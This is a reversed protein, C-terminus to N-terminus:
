ESDRERGDDLLEVDRLRKEISRTRVFASDIGESAQRLKEQARELMQGFAGFDGRVEGLLRWLEASHRQIALTRFGMQLSNLLALLTSPGAMIVRYDRQVQEVTEASRMVEAYLGETPLFMVAFDTTYPPEVYKDAIRKAEVRIAAALAKRAAEVAKPEGQQSADLLRLYAEQPFKSDIPLYVPADSPSDRGPLCLAFEVREAAHPRVAVNTAYQKQTLVQERLAGLQVEGWAGRTKVNGLMRKLDDVGTSLSRMEGLSQYVLELRDSVQAFSESLRKDLTEHLKQDVTQRIEDLKQANDGQMRRMGEELTLRTRELREDMQRMSQEYRELSDATIGQMRHQRQEQAQESEFAQRQMADLQGAQMQAANHLSGAVRDGMDQMARYLSERQEVGEQALADSMGRLESAVGDSLERMQRRLARMRRLSLALIVIALVFAAALLALAVASSLEFTPM